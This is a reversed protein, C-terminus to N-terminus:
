ERIREAFWIAAECYNKELEPNRNKVDTRGAFRVRYRFVVNSLYNPRLVMVSNMLFADEKLRIVGSDDVKWEIDTFNEPGSPYNEINTLVVIKMQDPFGATTVFKDSSQSISNSMDVPPVDWQMTLNNGNIALSADFNSYNKRALRPMMQMWNAVDSSYELTAAADKTREDYNVRGLPLVSASTASLPLVMVSSGKSFKGSALVNMWRYFEYHRHLLRFVWNREEGFLGTFLDENTEPMENVWDKEEALLSLYENPVDDFAWAIQLSTLPQGAVIVDQASKVLRKTERQERLAGEFSVRREADLTLERQLRANTSEELASLRDRDKEDEAILDQKRTNERQVQLQAEEAQKRELRDLITQQDKQRAEDRDREEKAVGEASAQNKIITEVALTNLSLLLSLVVGAIAIKGERTFVKRSSGSSVSQNDSEESDTVPEPNVETSLTHSLGWITSAAALVLGSYKLIALLVTLEFM